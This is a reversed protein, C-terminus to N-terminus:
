MYGSLPEPSSLENSTGQIVGTAVMVERALSSLGVSTSSCSHIRIFNSKANFIGGM